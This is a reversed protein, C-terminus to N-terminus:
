RAERIGPVPPVMHRLNDAQALAIAPTARPFLVLPM